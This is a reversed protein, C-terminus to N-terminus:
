AQAVELSTEVFVMSVDYGKDKFAQVQAQMVKTSGGTGDVVIGDGNGAFKGQKRKAIKRAEWTLKSLQSRQEATYDAQDEPLGHNKKLWELSIDSNVIKYGAKKLGLKGIVNGKGSGAGGAMFIVKRGPKPTGSPNPIRAKVGSKTTALTDDFDLVSIGKPKKSFNGQAFVENEANIAEIEKRATPIGTKEILESYEQHFESMEVKTNTDVDIIPVVRPDGLTKDNYNRILNVDKTNFNTGEPLSSASGSEAIAKDFQESIVQVTYQSLFEHVNSIGGGHIITDMMSLAVAVAPIMHEYRLMAAELDLMNEAMYKLGAARRLASSMNSLESSLLMGLEVNSISGKELQEAFFEFRSLLFERAFNEDARRKVMSEGTPNKLDKSGSVVTNAAFTTNVNIRVGNHTITNTDVGGDKKLKFKLRPDVSSTYEGTEKDMQLEGDVSSILLSETFFRVHKGNPDTYAQARGPSTTSSQQLMAVWRFFGPIDSQNYVRDVQMKDTARFTDLNGKYEPDQFRKVAGVSDGTYASVLKNDNLSQNQLLRVVEKAQKLPKKGLNKVGTRDLMPKMASLLREALLPVQKLIEPDNVFENRLALEVSELSHNIPPIINGVVGVLGKFFRESAEVGLERNIKGVAQRNINRVSFMGSSKGEGVLAIVSMPNSETNIAEQRVAQNAVIMATQEAMARIAGDHKKNNDLSGDENVGFASLFEATSINTRKTQSLKGAASAGEAFKVRDGKDYFKNLLMKPLGTAEGSRTEGEPLLELLAAANGKIFEQATKRQKGDLDKNEVIKKSPIGFESAVAELVPALVASKGKLLKKVGKYTLDKLSIDAGTVNSDITKKTSPKLGVTNVAMSGKAKADRDVAVDAATSKTDVVTDAFSQGESMPADLSVTDLEQKYKNMIDGKARYIQSMGRGGSVGTLWGFLSDNKAPDFQKLYREGLNEKVSKTFERLAVPPLGLETMGQQILGDLARGDQIEFYANTFAPDVSLEDKSNFKRSGDENQIHKDFTQKLDPNSDKARKVAKSFNSRRDMEDFTSEEDVGRGSSTTGSESYARAQDVLVGGAGKVAMKVIGKDVYNGKVSASYDKLFKKVDDTNNFNIDRASVRSFVQRIWDAIKVWASDSLKLHGEILMESLVTLTEEHRKEPDYEGMKSDFIKKAAPTM